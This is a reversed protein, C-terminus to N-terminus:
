VLIRLVDHYTVAIMLLIILALGVTNLLQVVLHSARRRLLAEIALILIRGGDLVPIPILNIFVLNISIFAALSLLDGLGSRSAEGVVQVLGIPGIIDSIDPSGRLASSLVSWLGGGVRAFSVKTATLADVLAQGWPEGAYTVLALAVGIAPKEADSTIVAQAPILQVTSIQGSRSYSISLPKGGHLSVFSAVATPTLASPHAGAADSIAVITDGPQLGIIQAPSGDVVDALMLQTAQGQQPADVVRPIGTHLAGAFLVYALLANMAVGALMIVAQKSRPADAFSGKGHEEEEGFLRVFGGFPIWNLTYETGGFRAILLARPPYGIGFEEVRVRFLKAAVFHGFEHVVILVVLLVIVLLITM